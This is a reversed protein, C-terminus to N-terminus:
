CAPTSRMKIPKLANIMYRGAPVHVTGGSSPLADFAAQFAATDDHVGNGLAGKSRVEITTTGLTVTPSTTWWTTAAFSPAAAASLALGAFALMLPKKVFNKIPAAARVSAALKQNKLFINM